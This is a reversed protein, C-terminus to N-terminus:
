KKIIFQDKEHSFLKQIEEPSRTKIALCTKELNTLRNQFYWSSVLSEELDDALRLMEANQVLARSRNQEKGFDQYFQLYYGMRLNSLHWPTWSKWCVLLDKLRATAKPFRDFRKIINKTKSEIFTYVLKNESLQDKALFSSIVGQRSLPILRDHIGKLEEMEASIRQKRFEINSKETYVLHNFKQIFSNFNSINQCYIESDDILPDINCTLLTYHVIYDELLGYYQKSLNRIEPDILNPLFEPFKSPLAQNFNKKLSSRLDDQLKSVILQYSAKGKLEDELKIKKLDPCNRLLFGPYGLYYENIERYIHYEEFLCKEKPFELEDETYMQNKIERSKRRNEQFEDDNKYNLYVKYEDNRQSDKVFTIPIRHKEYFSRTLSSKDFKSEDIDFAVLPTIM